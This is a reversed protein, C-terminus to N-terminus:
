AVQYTDGLDLTYSYANKGLIVAKQFGLKEFINLSACNEKKVEALFSKAFSPSGLIVESIMKKGIGKGRYQAAVSYSITKKSKDGDLRIQGVPGYQSEFLLLVCKPDKIKSGFWIQHEEWTIPKTNFANNRVQADNAWYWYIRCDEITANRYSIKIGNLHGVLLEKIDKLGNCSVVKIGNKSMEILDQPNNLAKMLMEKIHSVSLECGEGLSMIAGFNCLDNTPLMQNKAVPIVICPLGLYLREWTTSGGAGIALDTKSMLEAMNTVQVHLTTGPREQVLKEVHERNPNQVGIVV